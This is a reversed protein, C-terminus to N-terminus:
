NYSPDRTLYGQVRGLPSLHNSSALSWFSGPRAKKYSTMLMQQLRPWHSEICRLSFVMKTLIWELSIRVEFCASNHTRDLAPHDVFGPSTVILLFFSLASLDSFQFCADTSPFVCCVCVWSLAAANTVHSVTYIECAQMASDRLGGGGM